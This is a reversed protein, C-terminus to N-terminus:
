TRRRVHEPQLALLSFIRMQGPSSPAPSPEPIAPIATLPERGASEAPRGWCGEGDFLGNEVAKGDHEGIESYISM